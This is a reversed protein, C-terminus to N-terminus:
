IETLKLTEILTATAVNFVAQTEGVLCEAADYIGIRAGADEMRVRWAKAYIWFRLQDLSAFGYRLKGKNHWKGPEGRWVVPEFFNGRRAYARLKEDRYAMPHRETEGSDIRAADALGSGNYIGWGKADEVRYIKAM